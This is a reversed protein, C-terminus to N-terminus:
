KARKLAQNIKVAAVQKAATERSLPHKSLAKGKKTVAVYGGDRKRLGGKAM